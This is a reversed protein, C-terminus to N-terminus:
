GARFSIVDEHYIRKMEKTNLRKKNKRFDKPRWTKYRIKWSLLRSRWSRYREIRTISISLWNSLRKRFSKLKKILSRCSKRWQTWNWKIKLTWKSRSRLKLSSRRISRRCSGRKIRWSQKNKRWLRKNCERKELKPRWLKNKSKEKMSFISM